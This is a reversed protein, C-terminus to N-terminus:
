MHNKYYDIIKMEHEETQHPFYRKNQFYGGTMNCTDVYDGIEAVVFAM